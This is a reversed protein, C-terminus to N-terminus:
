SRMRSAEFESRVADLGYDLGLLVSLLVRSKLGSLDGSFIAGADQLDRGGGGGGYVPRTYGEPCRSAVIVPIGKSVVREVAKPFAPPANGLGFAELVIARAGNNAAYELYAPTAGMALKILEVAEVVHLPDYRRRGLPRRHVHVQEGEVEGLKGYSGSRFTDTRSTHVKSVERAAHIQQEFVIVAGLDAAGDAAATRVADAINRPGDTDPMDAHRQAGTFVVPRSGSLVLDCLFSSEEMTDTGHTVVVGAHTGASLIEDVRRALRLALPLDFAFSGISAFEEVDLGIGELPDHLSARLREGSINAEVRDTGAARSSAITGGTTLLAVRTM